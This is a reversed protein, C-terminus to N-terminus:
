QPARSAAQEGASPPRAAAAEDLESRWRQGAKDYHLPGIIFQTRDLTVLKSYADAPLDAELVIQLGTDSDQLVLPAPSRVSTQQPPPAIERPRRSSSIRHVLARLKAYGDEAAKSGLVTLFAHEPLVALVIWTLSTTDGRHVPSIQVRADAGCDLTDLLLREDQESLADPSSLIIKAKAPPVQRSAPSSAPKDM